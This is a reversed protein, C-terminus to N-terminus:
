NHDDPVEGMLREKRGEGHAGGSAARCSREARSGPDGPGGLHGAMLLERESDELQSYMGIMLGGLWGLLSAYEIRVESASAGAGGDDILHRLEGALAPSVSHQLEATVTKLLRHIRAVTEPPMTEPKLEDGVGSLMEWMRLVREPSEM